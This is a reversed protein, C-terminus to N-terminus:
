ALIMASGDTSLVQSSVEVISFLDSSAVSCIMAEAKFRSIM